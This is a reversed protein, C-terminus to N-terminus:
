IDESVVARHPWHGKYVNLGHCIGVWREGGGRAIARGRERERERERERGRERKRDKWGSPFAGLAPPTHTHTLSCTNRQIDQFAGGGGWGGAM